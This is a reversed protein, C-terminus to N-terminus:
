CEFLNGFYDEQEKIKQYNENYKDIISKFVLFIFM